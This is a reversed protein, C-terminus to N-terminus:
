FYVRLDICRREDLDLSHSMVVVVVGFSEAVSRRVAQIWSSAWGTLAWM